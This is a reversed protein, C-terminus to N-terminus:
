NCEKNAIDLAKSIIEMGESLEADSVTLPPAMLVFNWRVFTFMGLEKIKAAVQAMAGMQAPTANWPAMPEKTQKNKVIEFCGFLGRSRYDGICNHKAMLEQALKDMKRGMEASRQILNNNKIYQINALGAALCVPHASYTLGLLLADNEFKKTIKDSVIIGGLPTYGSTVGKAFSIIDPVVGSHEIAFWKGTRGFGSMVEDDIILFDYKDALKKVGQWYGDPYKIIGSSGSEGEMLIAAISNPGEFLIIRELHELAKECCDKANDTGWPCRYVYPDEFHVIGPIQFSSMAFKRPDGGASMAGITAGHYSRYRALIKLKGTAMRALKIANENAEAGGLTFFTKNLDGPALDALLKGLDGRAKTVMGPYVFQVEDLQKKIADTVEKRGHGINVCILQSSFDLYKKGDYDYIYSGDAKEIAIHDTPAQPSWSYLTHNNSKKIIEERLEKSM